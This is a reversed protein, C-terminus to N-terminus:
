KGEWEPKRGALFSEVGERFDESTYCKEIWDMDEVQNRALRNQLERTARLTLPAQHSVDAALELARNALQVEDDLLESVLGVQLAEEAGLLRSTFLIERVRGAGILVSLRALNAASLCNGLTSAMPFGFRLNRNAIRLDCTAAIVGGGGTCAGSLAAITPVPCNEISTLVSEMSNEYDRAQDATYFERFESIDTGAAFAKKGIGRIVLARTGEPPNCCVESLRGYMELTLANRFTPRNFLVLAISGIQEVLLDDSAPM